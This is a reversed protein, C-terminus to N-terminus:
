TLDCRTPKEPNLLLRGCRDGIMMSPAGTNGSTVSPMVAACAVRLGHVGRVRLEPDVVADRDCGMRCTGVAHFDSESYQRIAQIVDAESQV